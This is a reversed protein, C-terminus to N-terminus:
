DYLLTDYQSLPLIPHYLLYVRLTSLSWLNTERATELRPPGTRRTHLHVLRPAAFSGFLRPLCCTSTNSLFHSVVHEVGTEIITSASEGKVGESYPTVRKGGCHDPWASVLNAEGHHCLAEVAEAGM